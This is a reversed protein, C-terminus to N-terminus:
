NAIGPVSVISADVTTFVEKSKKLLGLDLTEYLAYPMVNGYAGPDCLCEPIDMGRIKSTVLCPGLDECNVPMETAKEENGRFITAIFFTEGKTEEEVVEDDVEREPEEEVEEDDLDDSDALEALLEYLWEDDDEEEVEEDNENHVMNIGGKPNLLPQSPQPSSTSPQSQPNTTPQNIFKHLLETIHSLQSEFRKHNEKMERSEQQYARLTEEYNPPPVNPPSYTQRTHPPQYRQNQLNQPQNYIYPQRFHNQQPQQPPNWRNQKFHQNNNAMSDILEWAEEPTKNMLAGGTSADVM